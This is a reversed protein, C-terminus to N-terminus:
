PSPQCSAGPPSELHDITWDVRQSGYYTSVGFRRSISGLYEVGNGARSPRYAKLILPMERYPGSFADSILPVTVSGSYGIGRRIAGEADYVDIFPACNNLVTVIVAVQSLPIRRKTGDSYTVTACNSTALALLVLLILRKM